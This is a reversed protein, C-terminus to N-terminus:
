EKASNGAIAAASTARVPIPPIASKHAQPHEAAGEAREQMLKMAGMDHTYDAFRVDEYNKRIAVIRYEFPISARGGGLERVEFSGPTKNVVSLGKCEGNPTLFVHYEIRTNVTQIFDPAITVVARGGSLQASGFDEFWDKPSEIAALAVRRAGSDIPVIAHKSGTCNLNGNNDVECYGGTGKNFAILPYSLSGEAQIGVTYNGASNNEFFGAIGEDVTGLVAVAIDSSTAGTGGDGWVGVGFGGPFTKIVDGSAASKSLSQGFVGVGTPSGPTLGYVGYPSGTTSLADGVVGYGTSSATVGEVGFATGTPSLAVGYIATAETSSNTAVYLPNNNSSSISVVGSFTNEGALQPVKTTDLNLTVNGSTGGGTLDTGATVGTITGSGKLNACVWTKGNWQLVQNAACTNTLSLNLTGSTGGGMLGSGSATTIGTIGGGGSAFVIDLEPSHSTTTSEKSDFNANVPSNGVLAIGDNAQSGNLWAQVAPTIDILIYKNKEATTLPVSAVITTGLAPANGANITSESWTGNVYDVNFSGATTVANVYLKLSAKTVNAGTYSSPIASLDFQIYATQSSEM